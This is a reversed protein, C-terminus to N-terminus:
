PEVELPDNEHVDLVVGVLLVFAGLLLLHTALLGGLLARGGDLPGGAAAVGVLGALLGAVGLPYCFVLPHFDFVLYRLTLRRCFNRALLLSLSPVFTAYSIDSSEDGYVAAHPVDAVRASRVNLATLLDNLFGYGDYLDDLPVRELADTSIATYGNQSDTMRWYGSAGKTLLTLLANGFLRWASMGERSGRARLRDGKAYDARGSVVPDLLRDLVDPDMQGDGNMVAVVDCGDDLARRYGTKVAAGVGRNTEHRLPVVRGDGDAVPTEAPGGTEGTEPSAPDAPDEDGGGDACDPPGECAGDARRRIEAWTGDSSGDDVPYVRDVYAPVTDIVGGVFGEENYAPVVVGVTHERYM